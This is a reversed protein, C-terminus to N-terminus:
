QIVFRLVKSRGETSVVYVQYTGTALNSVNVPVTNFGAIANITQKQMVRGQMDTIMMDMQTKQAASINLKFNRNVIPNPAINMIDIGASANILSVISSYTVKGDADTMKLRYYNVGPLPHVDTYSFPQQCQLATAYISNIGSFNRGDTSRLLEMTVGPTSNCTVKWNLLHNGNQKTGNLYHLTIPLLFGDNSIAFKSFNSWATLAATRVGPPTGTPTQAGGTSQWLSSNTHWLLVDLAPNFLAGIQTPDSDDYQFTVDSPTAPPNTSPTITWTRQVSRAVNAVYIPDIVSLVDEVKVSWDYATPNNITVPNYTSVGIPFVKLATVNQKLVGTGNTHIYSTASAGTITSTGNITLDNNGLVINGPAGLTITKGSAVNMGNNTLTVTKGAAVSINHFSNTTGADAVVGGAGNFNWTWVGATSLGPQINGGTNSLNGTLNIVSTGDNAPTTSLGQLTGATINLDGGITLTGVVPSSGSNVVLVSNASTINLNGDITHTRSTTAGTALRIEFLAGLTVTMNGRVVLGGFFPSATNSNQITGNGTPTPEYYLNGFEPLSASLGNQAGNYHYNSTTALVRELGPVASVTGGQYYSSTGLLNFRNSATMAFTLANMKAGSLITLNATTRAADLWVSDPSQIVVHAAAAGPILTSAIWSTSDNSSEWIGLTAWSGSAITRFFDTPSSVLAPTANVEVGATWTTGFRTFIKFYYITGNVLTNVVQPSAPTISNYVVFGSGLATGAGYALNGTYASGDGSPTGDNPTTARAVILVADYCGTPNTWSVSSSANAVSAAPATVDNPTAAIITQLGGAFATGSKNGSVFSIDATTIADVSINNAVVAACPLDASIFIYGTNGSLISQNTFSPFVQAGAGLGAVKTSLLVDTGPSFTADPSYWCKFNTIDTAAYTGATTVTVGNLTADATTVALDFRYIANNISGQVINGATVAPNPSSLVIDPTGGASFTATMNIDDLGFEDRSGSGGVDAGSWRIYVYSGPTITLGTITTSRSPATGVIVWGLGDAVDTSTYDLAGVPTYTVDDSSYSFNFSNSRGQDNRIYINYSVALQTINTTGNNQIRLTLTGPAWDSGGPQIMFAPDAVSHPVGTFAYFGGTSVAIATAGRTYDTAATIQTGGFALAGNSWGTVAWANSNLRGATVTAPEFGAATYATSPNSGVGTPTTNSFDITASPSGNTLSVQAWVGTNFIILASLVFYVKKM